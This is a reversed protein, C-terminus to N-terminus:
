VLVGAKRARRIQGYTARPKTVRSSPKRLRTRAVESEVAADHHMALFLANPHLIVGDILLMRYYEEVTFCWFWEDGLDRLKQGLLAQSATPKNGPAKLECWIRRLGKVVLLTDPTGALVGRAKERMHTWQGSPKSRDFAMFLHEVAIAERTWQLIHKQLIHEPSIMTLRCSTKCSM